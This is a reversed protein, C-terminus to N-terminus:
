ERFTYVIIVSVGGHVPLIVAPSAGQECRPRSGAESSSSLLFLWISMGSRQLGQLSGVPLLHEEATAVLCGSVGACSGTPDTAGVLEGSGILELGVFGYGAGTRAVILQLSPRLVKTWAQRGGSQL